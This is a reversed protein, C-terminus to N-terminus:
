KLIVFLLLSNTIRRFFTIFTDGYEVGKIGKFEENRIKLIKQIFLNECNLYKISKIGIIIDEM